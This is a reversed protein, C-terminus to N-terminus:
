NLLCPLESPLHKNLTIEEQISGKGKITKASHFVSAESFMIKHLSEWGKPTGSSRCPPCPWPPDWPRLLCSRSSKLLSVSAKLFLCSGFLDGPIPLFNRPLEKLESEGEECELHAYGINYDKMKIKTVMEEGELDPWELEEEDRLMMLSGEEAEESM